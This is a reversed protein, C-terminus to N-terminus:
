DAVRKAPRVSEDAFDTHAPKATLWLENLRYAFGYFTTVSELQGRRRPWNEGCEKPTALTLLM